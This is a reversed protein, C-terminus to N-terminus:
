EELLLGRIYKARNPFKNHFNSSILYLAVSEAFDESFRDNESAFNKAYSTVFHYDKSVVETYQTYSYDIIKKDMLHNAFTHAIEHYLIQKATQKAYSSFQYLTIYYTM